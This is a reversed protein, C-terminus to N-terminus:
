QASTIVQYFAGVIIVIVLMLLVYPLITKNKTSKPRKRLRIMSPNGTKGTDKHGAKKTITKIKPNAAEIEGLREYLAQARELLEKNISHRTKKPAEAPLHESYELNKSMRIERHTSRGIPTKRFFSQPKCIYILSSNGRISKDPHALM